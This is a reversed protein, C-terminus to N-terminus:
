WLSTTSSTMLCHSVGKQGRVRNRIIGKSVYVSREKWKRVIRWPIGGGFLNLMLVLLVMCVEECGDWKEPGAGLDNLYGKISHSGVRM